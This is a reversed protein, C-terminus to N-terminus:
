LLIIIRSGRRIWRGSMRSGAVPARPIIRKGSVARVGKKSLGPAHRKAASKLAKKAIVKASKTSVPIGKRKLRSEVRAAKKATSAALRVIRRAVEFEADEQSMGELELGFLKSAFNGLSGGVMGGVGPAVINGLIGGLAPLAKKAIKKVLGGVIRGIKSRRFFKKAGRFVKRFLKGLFYDLEEETSVELLESALQMEAEEDLEEEFEDEMEDELEDEEELEQELDDEFEDYESSM